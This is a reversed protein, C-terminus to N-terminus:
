ASKAFSPMLVTIPGSALRVPPLLLLPQNLTGPVFNYRIGMLIESRGASAATELKQLEDIVHAEWGRENMALSTAMAGSHHGGNIAHSLVAPSGVASVRFHLLVLVFAERTM